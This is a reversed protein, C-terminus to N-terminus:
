HPAIACISSKMSGDWSYGVIKWGGHRREVADPVLERIRGRLARAIERVDQSLSSLFEEVDNSM